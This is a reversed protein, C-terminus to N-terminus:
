REALVALMALWDELAVQPDTRMNLWRERLAPCTCPRLSDSTIKM